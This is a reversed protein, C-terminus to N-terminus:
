QKNAAELILNVEALLHYVVEEGSKLLEIVTFGCNIHHRKPVGNFVSETIDKVQLLFLSFSLSITQKVLVIVFMNFYMFFPYYDFSCHHM